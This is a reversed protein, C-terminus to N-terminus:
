QNDVKVIGFPIIPLFDYIDYPINSTENTGSCDVYANEAIDREFTLSITNKDWDYSVPSMKGCTDTLRFMLTEVRNEDVFLTDYVNKFYMKVTKSDTKIIKEIDPADCIIDKGYVYKLALNAVRDGIVMCTSATNHIGDRVLCDISPVMFVNGINLMAQRQAERISNFYGGYEEIDKGRLCTKKNIQVTLIPINKYFVNEFDKAVEFFNQYYDVTEVERCTENCGQIWLIGKIGYSTAEVMNLMNDFLEGNHKRNWSVISSGGRATPILGIPYGMSSSIKKAFLIWPSKGSYGKGISEDFINNTSDSLPHTAIDWEGSLRFVHVNMDPTENISEFGMGDANSQGAIVYVDGVGIHKIRDGRRYWRRNYRYMTDIRYLGGAPIDFDASWKNGEPIVTIPPLIRADTNEDCIRVIITGDKYKLIEDDLYVEGSLHVKAYGNTQQLIQWNKPGNNITVGYM